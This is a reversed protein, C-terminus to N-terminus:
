SMLCLFLSKNINRKTGGDMIIIGGDMRAHALVTNGRSSRFLEHM